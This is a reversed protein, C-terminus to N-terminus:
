GKKRDVAVNNWWILTRHFFNTKDHVRHQQMPKEVKLCYLLTLMTDLSFSIGNTRTSQPTIKKVATSPTLQTSQTM